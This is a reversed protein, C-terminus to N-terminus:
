HVSCFLCPDFSRVVHGIEIPNQEDEVPTGILAQEVAGPNGESDRPSM